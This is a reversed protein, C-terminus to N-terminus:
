QVLSAINAQYHLRYRHALDLNIGTFVHGHETLLAAGVYGTWTLGKNAEAVLRAQKTAEIAIITLNINKLEIERNHGGPIM